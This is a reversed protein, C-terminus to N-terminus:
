YKKLHKEIQNVRIYVTAIINNNKSPDASLALSPIENYYIATDINQKKKMLELALDITGIFTIQFIEPLIFHRFEEPLLVSETGIKLEQYSRENEDIEGLDAKKNSEESNIVEVPPPDPQLEENSEIISRENGELDKQDYIENKIDIRKLDTPSFFKEQHFLSKGKKLIIDRNKYAAQM